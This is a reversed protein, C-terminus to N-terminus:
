TQVGQDSPSNFGRRGARRGLPLKAGLRLKSPFEDTDGHANQPISWGGPQVIGHQTGCGFTLNNVDTCGWTVYGIVHHVESYYGPVTCSPATCSRHL